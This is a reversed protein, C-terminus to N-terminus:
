YFIKYVGNYCSGFSYCVAGGTLLTLANSAKSCGFGIFAPPYKQWILDPIPVRKFQDSTIDYTLINNSQSLVHLPSIGGIIIIKNENLFHAISGIRQFNNHQLLQEVFIKEGAISFKYLKNNVTPKVVDEMGGQILGYNGNYVMSCSLLNSIDGHVHLKTYTQKHTDYMLFLQDNPTVLGGFILLTSESIKVTAHRSRPHPLSVLQTWKNDKLRYVDQFCTNPKSRGGVLIIEENGLTTMTHCMRACPLAGAVSMEKVQGDKLTYTSDTRTQSLGGNIVIEDGRQAVSSFKLNLLEANQVELNEVRLSEDLEYSEEETNNSDKFVLQNLNSAHLIIYHQCFLIFEEWEDFYEIEEVKSKLSDSILYTWSEFLNKVEVHEYYSKFRNSQLEKTPYTEVCQLPSRLHSFHYLMKQAFTNYPGTPLIQELILFHSNKVKSSHEIIPNAFEPKMYALSVEAVFIKISDEDLLKELQKKYLQDDKLDCGILKYNETSYKIGLEELAKDEVKTGLLQVIPESEQIMLQKRAVLEPYDFDLFSLKADKNKFKSLLQFPLPDFGCGLNVISIHKGPNLAVINLIMQKISEMRIWYGRNIAPSRRKPKAVFYQFWEGVEPDLVKSYLMEVSRKSVISSNNTGQVQLDHYQKRRKDKEIKKLQNQIQKPDLEKKPM